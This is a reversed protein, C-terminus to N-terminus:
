LSLPLPQHRRTHSILMGVKSNQNSLESYLELKGKLYIPISKYEYFSLRRNVTRLIAILFLTNISM